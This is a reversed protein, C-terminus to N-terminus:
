GELLGSVKEEDLGMETAIVAAPNLGGPMANCVGAEEPTFLERALEYFEPIDMAPYRGGRRSLTECLKAYVDNGM